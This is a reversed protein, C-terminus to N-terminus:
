AWGLWGTLRGRLMAIQNAARRPRGLAAWALAAVAPKLLMGAAEPAPRRRQRLVRGTGLSYRYIKRRSERRFDPLLPPHYVQTPVILIRHGATYARLLLDTEEGSGWPTGAGLGLTEDFGGITEVVERRLFITGSACRKWIAMPRAIKPSPRRRPERRGPVALTLALGASDPRRALWSVVDRLVWPAYWCDDDPFALVQGTAARIGLNRARSLGPACPIRTVKPDDPTPLDELLGDRNQDVIVLEWNDHTQSKVSDILRILPARRGLTGVILSIKCTTATM